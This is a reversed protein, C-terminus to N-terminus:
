FFLVVLVGFILFILDRIKVIESGSKIGFVSSLLVEVLFFFGLNKFGSFILNGFLLEKVFVVFNFFISLSINVLLLDLVM